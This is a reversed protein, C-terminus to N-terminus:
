AWRTSALMSNGIDAEILKRSPSMKSPPGTGNSTSCSCPKQHATPRTAQSAPPYQPPTASAIKPPFPQCCLAPMIAETNTYSHISEQGRNNCSSLAFSNAFLSVRRLCSGSNVHPRQNRTPKV